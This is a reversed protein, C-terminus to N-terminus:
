APFAKSKVCILGMAVSIKFLFCGGKMINNMIRLDTSLEDRSGRGRPVDFDSNDVSGLKDYPLSPISQEYEILYLNIVINDIDFLNPTICLISRM